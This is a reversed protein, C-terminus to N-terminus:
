SGAKLATRWGGAQPRNTLVLCDRAVELLTDRASTKGWEPTYPPLPLPEEGLAARWIGRVLGLCDCGAGKVSAQHLYPTGIWSAAEALIDERSVSM